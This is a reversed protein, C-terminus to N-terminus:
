CITKGLIESKKRCADVGEAITDILDKERFVNVAEITTGGKSCVRDVLVSLPEDSIKAIEAAGIITDLALIKSEEYSLGGNMGGKIMGEAFMYVYAPGSGSVSTIADFNIEETVVVSGCASFIECAIKKEADTVGNFTMGCVGKGIKCPVNPMIRVIGTTSLALNERLVGTNIGAMISYVTEVGDFCIGSCASKYHQPKVAILVRKSDTVLGKVSDAVTVGVDAFRKEKQEDLDFVCIENPLFKDSKLIQSLIAEGMVGLGIVGLSYKMYKVKKGQSFNTNVKYYIADFPLPEITSCRDGFGSTAHEFRTEGAM